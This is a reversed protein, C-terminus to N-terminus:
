THNEIVLYSERNDMFGSEFSKFYFDCTCDFNYGLTTLDKIINWKTTTDNISINIKVSIEKNM